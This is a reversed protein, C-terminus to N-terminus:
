DRAVYYMGTKSRNIILLSEQNESIHILSMLDNIVDLYDERIKDEDICKKGWSMTTEFFTREFDNHFYVSGMKRM